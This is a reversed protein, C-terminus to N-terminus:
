YISPTRAGMQRGRYAGARSFAAVCGFPQEHDVGGGVEYAPGWSRRRITPWDVHDTWDPRPMISPASRYPPGPHRSARPGVACFPAPNPNAGPKVPGGCP